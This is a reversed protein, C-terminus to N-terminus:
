VNACQVKRTFASVVGFVIWFAAYVYFMELRPAGANGELFGWATAGSLTIATSLLIRRNMIARIYEDSKEMYRLVLWFTAPIPLAPLVALVYLAVGTPHFAGIARISIFLLAIYLAMWFAMGLSYRMGLLNPNM